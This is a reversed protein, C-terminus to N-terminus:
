HNETFKPHACEISFFGVGIFDPSSLAEAQSKVVLSRAKYTYKNSSFYKKKIESRRHFSDIKLM